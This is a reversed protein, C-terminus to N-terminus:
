GRRQASPSRPPVTPPVSAYPLGVRVVACEQVPAAAPGSRLRARRAASRRRHGPYGSSRRGVPSSSPPSGVVRAPTRPAIPRPLLPALGRDGLRIKRPEGFVELRRPLARTHGHARTLLQQSRQHVLNGGVDVLSGTLDNQRDVPLAALVGLKPEALGLGSFVIAAGRVFSQGHDLAHRAAPRVLVDGCGQVSHSHRGSLALGPRCMTDARDPTDTTNVGISGGLLVAFPQGQRFGRSKAADGAVADALSIM